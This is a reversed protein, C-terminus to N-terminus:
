CSQARYLHMKESLSSLKRTLKLVVGDQQNKCNNGFLYKVFPLDGSSDKARCVLFMSVILPKLLGGELLHELFLLLGSAIGPREESESGAGPSSGPNAVEECQRLRKVRPGTSTSDGSVLRAKFKPM